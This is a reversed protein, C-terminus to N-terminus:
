LAQTLLHPRFIENPPFFFLPFLLLQMRTQLFDSPCKGDPMHEM